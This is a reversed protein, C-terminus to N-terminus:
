NNFAEESMLEGKILNKFVRLTMEYHKGDITLEVKPNENNEESFDGWDKSTVIGFQFISNGFKDQYFVNINSAFDRFYRTTRKTQKKVSIM